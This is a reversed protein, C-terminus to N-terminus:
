PSQIIEDEGRNEDPQESTARESETQIVAEQAVQTEDVEVPKDQISKKPGELQKLKNELIGNSRALAELREAFFKVQEQYTSVATQYGKNSARLDLNQEELDKVRERLSGPEGGEQTQPKDSVAQGPRDSDPVGGALLGRHADKAKEEALVAEASDPTIYYKEQDGTEGYLVADFRSQDAANKECWRALSRESRVVGAAKFMEQVERVTLTHAASEKQTSLGQRGNDSQTLRQRVNASVTQRQRGKDSKKNM